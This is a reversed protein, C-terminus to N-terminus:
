PTDEPEPDLDLDMDEAPEAKRKQNASIIVWVALGVMLLVFVWWYRIFTYTVFTILCAILFSVITLVFRLGAGIAKVPFINILVMAPGLMLNFAITWLVIAAVIRLWRGAEEEGHKAAVLEDKSQNTLEYFDPEGKIQGGSFEAALLVEQGAYIVKVAHRLKDHTQLDEFEKSLIEVWPLRIRCKQPNIVVNGLKVPAWKVDHEKERWGEHQTTVEETYEVEKGNEVETRTEEHTEEWYEYRELLYDYALIPGAPSGAPPTLVDGAMVAGSVIGKGEISGVEAVPTVQLKAIDQSDKETRAACFPLAFTVLFLLAGFFFGGISDLCTSKSERGWKAFPNASGVVRRSVIRRSIERGSKNSM